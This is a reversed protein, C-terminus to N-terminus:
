ANSRRWSRLLAAVLLMLVGAPEPIIYLDPTATSAGVDSGYALDGNAKTIHEKVGPNPETFGFYIDDTPPDATGMKIIFGTGVAMFISGETSFQMEGLLFHRTTGPNDPAGVQIPDGDPPDGPVFNFGLGTDYGVPIGVMRVLNDGVPNKDGGINWRRFVPDGDFDIEPDYMLGGTCTPGNFKLSVQCWRAATGQVYVWLYAKQGIAVVPVTQNTYEAPIASLDGQTSFYFELRNASAGAIVALCSVSVLTSLIRIM